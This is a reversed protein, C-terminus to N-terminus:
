KVLRKDYTLTGRFNPKVWISRKRKFEMYSLTSIYIIMVLKFSIFGLGFFLLNEM